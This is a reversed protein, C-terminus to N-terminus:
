KCRKAKEIAKEMAIKHMEAALHIKGDIGRSALCPYVQTLYGAKAPAEEVSVGKLMEAVFHTAGCFACRLVKVNKLRGGEIEVEFEPKGFYKFFESFDNLTPTVCCIDVVVVKKGHKEAERKLQARSGGKGTIILLKAKASRVLELNIDPHSAYSILVDVDFDPLKVDELLEPLDSPLEFTVVEFYKAMQEATSRGHNGRIIIGVKM